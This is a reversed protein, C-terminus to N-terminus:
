WDAPVASRSRAPEDWTTYDLDAYAEIDEAFSQDRWLAISDRLSRALLAPSVGKRCYAIAGAGLLEQVSAESEESSLIVIATEPAVDVIGTVARMGGGNPMQVDILAADPQVWAAVKVADQGDVATGVVEFEKSLTDSLVARVTPDDDAILIRWRRTDRETTSMVDSGQPPAAHETPLTRRAHRPVRKRDGSHSKAKLTVRRGQVSVRAPTLVPVCM